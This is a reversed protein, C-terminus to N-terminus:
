RMLATSIVIVSDGEEYAFNIGATIEVEPLPVPVFGVRKFGRGEGSIILAKRRAYEKNVLVAPNGSKIAEVRAKNLDAMSNCNEFM